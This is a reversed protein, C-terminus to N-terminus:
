RMANEGKEVSAAMSTYMTMMDYIPSPHQVATCKENLVDQRSQEQMEIHLLEQTDYAPCPNYVM